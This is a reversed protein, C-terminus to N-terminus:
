RSNRAIEPVRTQLVTQLVSLVNSGAKRHSSLIQEVDDAWHPAPGSRLLEIPRRDDPHTLWTYLTTADAGDLAAALLYRSLLRHSTSQRFDTNPAHSQLLSSAMTLATDPALCAPIDLFFSAREAEIVADLHRRISAADVGDLTGALLAAVIRKSGRREADTLGLYAAHVQQRTGDDAPLREPARDRAIDQGLARQTHARRRHEPAVPEEVAALRDYVDARTFHKAAWVARKEEAAPTGTAEMAAAYAADIEKRLEEAREHLQRAEARRAEGEGRATEDALSPLLSSVARPEDVLDEYWEDLYRAHTAPDAPGRDIGTRRREMLVWAGVTTTWREHAAQRSSSAANGIDTWNAGREREAVAAQDVLQAALGQIFLADRLLSGPDDAPYSQAVDRLAADTIERLTQARALMAEDAPALASPREREAPENAEDM